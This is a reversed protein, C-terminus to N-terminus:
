KREGRGFIKRIVVGLVGAALIPIVPTISTFAALLFVAAFIVFTPVDIVSSKWMRMCATIILVMVCVRIGAFAHLIVPEEAFNRLLAAVISIIILSPTIFGLTAIIGGPIGARKQGIFTSTNVAILGPTCQGIAFYDIIEENTAWGRDQVIERQIIPLMAYGGGITFLGIKAFTLYLRLLEKM